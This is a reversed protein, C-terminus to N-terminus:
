DHDVTLLEEHPASIVVVLNAHNYLNIRIILSIHHSYEKIVHCSM